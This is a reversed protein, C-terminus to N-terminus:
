RVSFGGVRNDQSTGETKTCETGGEGGKAKEGELPNENSTKWSLLVRSGEQDM